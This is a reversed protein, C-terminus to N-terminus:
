ETSTKNKKQLRTDDLRKETLYTAYYDAVEFSPSIFHEDQTYGRPEAVGTQLIAGIAEVANERIDAVMEEYTYPPPLGAKQAANLEDYMSKKIKIPIGRYYVFDAAYRVLSRLTNAEKPKIKKIKQALRLLSSTFM